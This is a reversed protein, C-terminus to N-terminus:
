IMCHSWVTATFMISKVTEAVRKQQSDTKACFM